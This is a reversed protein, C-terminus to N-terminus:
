GGAAGIVNVQMRGISAEAGAVTNGQRVASSRENLGHFKNLEVGGAEM